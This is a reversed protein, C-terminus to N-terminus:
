GKAYDEEGHEKVWAYTGRRYGNEELWKAIEPYNRIKDWENNTITAANEYNRNGIEEIIAAVCAVGRGNNAREHAQFLEYLTAM